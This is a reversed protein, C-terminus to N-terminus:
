SNSSFVPRGDFRTGGGLEDDSRGRSPPEYEQAILEPAAEIGEASSAEAHPFTTSGLVVMGLTFTLLVKM